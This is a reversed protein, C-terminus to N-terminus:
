NEIEMKTWKELECNERAFGLYKIFFVQKLEYLVLQQFNFITELFITSFM